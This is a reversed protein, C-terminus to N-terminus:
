AYLGQTMRDLFDQADEYDLPISSKLGLQDLLDILSLVSWRPTIARHRM